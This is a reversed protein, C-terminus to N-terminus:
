WGRFCWQDEGSVGELHVTHTGRLRRARRRGSVRLFDTPLMAAGLSLRNGDRQQLILGHRSRSDWSRVTFVREQSTRPNILTAEPPRLLLRLLTAAQSVLSRRPARPLSPRLVLSLSLSFPSFPLRHSLVLRSFASHLVPLLSPFFRPHGVPSYM